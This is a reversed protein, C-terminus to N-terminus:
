VEMYYGELKISRIPTNATLSYKITDVKISGVSTRLSTINLNTTTNNITISISIPDTAPYTDADVNISTLIFQKGPQILNILQSEIIFSNAIDFSIQKIQVVVNEVVSLLAGDSEYVTEIFKSPFEKTQSYLSIGNGILIYDILADTVVGFVAKGKLYFGISSTVSNNRDKSFVKLVGKGQEIKYVSYETDIKTLLYISQSYSMPKAICEGEVSYILAVGDRQNYSYLQTTNNNTAVIYSGVSYYNTFGSLIPQHPHPMLTGIQSSLYLTTGHQVMYTNAVLLFNGGWEIFDIAPNYQYKEQIAPLLASYKNNELKLTNYYVISYGGPVTDINDNNTYCNSYGSHFPIQKVPTICQFFNPQVTSSLNFNFEGDSGVIISQDFWGGNVVDIRNEGYRHTRSVENTKLLIDRTGFLGIHSLTAKYRDVLNKWITTIYTAQPDSSEPYDSFNISLDDSIVILHFDNIGSYTPMATSEFQSTDRLAIYLYRVTDSGIYKIVFSIYSTENLVKKISIIDSPSISVETSVYRTTTNKYTYELLLSNDKFSLVSNNDKYLVSYNGDVDDIKNSNTIKSYEPATFKRKIAVTGAGGLKNANDDSSITSNTVEWKKYNVYSIECNDNPDYFITNDIKTIDDSSLTNLILDDDAGGLEMNTYTNFSYSRRVINYSDGILLSDIVIIVPNNGFSPTENQDGNSTYAYDLQLPINIDAVSVSGFGDDVMAYENPQERYYTKTYLTIPASNIADLTIPAIINYIVNDGTSIVGLNSLNVGVANQIVYGQKGDLTIANYGINLLSMVDILIFEKQNLEVSQPKLQDININQSQSQVMNINQKNFGKFIEIGQPSDTFISVSQKESQTQKYSTLEGISSKNKYSM